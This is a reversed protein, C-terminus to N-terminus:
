TARRIADHSKSSSPLLYSAQRSSSAPSGVRALGNTKARSARSTLQLRSQGYLRASSLLDGQVSLKTLARVFAGNSKVLRSSGVQYVGMCSLCGWQYAVFEVTSQVSRRAACRLGNPARTGNRFLSLPAHCPSSSKLQTDRAEGAVYSLYAVALPPQSCHAFQHAERRTM